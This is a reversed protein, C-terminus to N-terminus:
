GLFQVQLAVASIDKSEIASADGVASGTTDDEVLGEVGRDHWGEILRHFSRAHLHKGVLILDDGCCSFGFLLRRALGWSRVVFRFWAFGWVGWLRCCWPGICRRSGSFRGLWCFRYHCFCVRAFLCRCGWRGIAITLRRFGCLGSWRFWGVGKWCWESGWCCVRGCGCCCVVGQPRCAWVALVGALLKKKM